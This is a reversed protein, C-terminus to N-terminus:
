LQASQLSRFCFRFNLSIFIFMFPFLPSSNLQTISSKKRFTNRSIQFTMM